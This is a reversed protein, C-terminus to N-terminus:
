HVWHQTVDIEESVEFDERILNWSGLRCSGLRSWVKPAPLRRGAGFTFRLKPHMM